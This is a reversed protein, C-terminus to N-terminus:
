YEPPPFLRKLVEITRQEDGEALYIENIEALSPLDECQSATTEEEM